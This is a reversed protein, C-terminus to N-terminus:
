MSASASSLSASANEKEGGLVDLGVEACDYLAYPGGNADWILEVGHVNGPQSNSGSGSGDAGVRKGSGSM